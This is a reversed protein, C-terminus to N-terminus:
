CSCNGDAVLPLLDALAQPYRPVVVNWFGGPTPTVGQLLGVDTALRSGTMVLGDSLRGLVTRSDEAVGREVLVSHYIQLLRDEHRREAIDLYGVLLPGLRPRTTRMNDAAM